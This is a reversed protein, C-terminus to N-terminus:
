LLSARRTEEVMKFIRQVINSLSPRQKPDQAWCEMMLDLYGVPCGKISPCEIETPITPRIGKDLNRTIQLGTLGKFPIQRTLLEFLVMGFSYTDAASTITQQDDLMEPAMWALTGVNHTGLSHLDEKTKALGFDTIFAQWTIRLLVNLSKLDRHIIPPTQAHLCSLGKGIDVAISLRREWPLKADPYKEQNQLIHYLSGLEALEMVLCANDDDLSYGYLRALNIHHLNGMTQCEKSLEEKVEKSLQGKIQKVAVPMYQYDARYVLGFSGEGLKKEQVKKSESPKPDL